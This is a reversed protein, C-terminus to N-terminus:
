RSRRVLPKMIKAALEARSVRGTRAAAHVLYIANLLQDTALAERDEAQLFQNILEDSGPVLDPLHAAVIEDLKARDPQDIEVTICRRLFAAPFEREENSTMVVIPFQSCQVRGHRVSARGTGDFTSVEADARRDSQRVLEPVEFEGSEFITLLDNPLDLDSKDIEDILLVRPKRAPLLATGLPGLRIYRGIDEDDDPEEGRRSAAYLRALPDYQYLGDTVAAKTTINWRLVRGLKLEYAIATALTSKGTGPRGTVLMPRRLFIAANVLEVTAPDARYNAGAAAEPATAPVWPAIPPADEAFKRWPPPAPLAAIGDHPGGAGRYIYWADANAM